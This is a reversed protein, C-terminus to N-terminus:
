ADKRRTFRFLRLGGWSENRTPDFTREKSLMGCDTLEPHSRLMRGLGDAVPEHHADHFLLYAEDALIPLTGEVDAVVGQTTHDGDILALEFPGGARHMAQALIEPSRGTLLTSRHAVRRWDDEAIAPNPDICILGGFDLDDMAAAIIRASGGRFTGIELCREPRLGFVLAYLLTREPWTMQIPAEYITQLRFPPQIMDARKRM